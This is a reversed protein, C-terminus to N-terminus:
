WYYIWGAELIAVNRFDKENDIVQQVEAMGAGVRLNFWDALFYTKGLVLTYRLGSEGDEYKITAVGLKFFTDSRVLSKPGWSDKGYAPAWLLEVGTQNVPKAYKISAYTNADLKLSSVKKVISRENTIFAPVFNLYIEWFDSIAYGVNTNLGYMTVPGDSFDFSGYVNFLVKRAKDKAKRQVVVVDEFVASVEDQKDQLRAGPNLPTKALAVDAAIDILLTISVFCIVLYNRLCIM